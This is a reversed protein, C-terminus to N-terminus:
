GESNQMMASSCYHIQIDDDRLKLEIEVNPKSVDFKLYEVSGSLITEPAQGKLECRLDNSKQEFRIWDTSKNIKLAKGNNETEASIGAKIQRSMMLMVQYADRQLSARKWEKVHNTNSVSLAIGAALILVISAVAVIILEILTFGKRSKIKM